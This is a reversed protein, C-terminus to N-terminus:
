GIIAGDDGGEFYTKIKQHWDRYFKRYAIVQSIYEEMLIDELKHYFETLEQRTRHKMLKDSMSFVFTVIYQALPYAYQKANLNLQKYRDRTERLWENIMWDFWTLMYKWDSSKSGGVVSATRLTLTYYTNRTFIVCKSAKLMEFSMKKDTTLGNPCSWSAHFANLYIESKVLVSWAAEPMRTECFALWKEKESRAIIESSLIPYWLFRVNQHNNEEYVSSQICVMDAFQEVVNTYTYKLYDRAYFDDSDLCCMYETTVRKKIEQFLAERFHTADRGLQREVEVNIETRYVKIRKDLEAYESIIRSTTGDNSGHDVIFYMFERFSQNLVSEISRRLYHEPTNYILSFVTIPPNQTMTKMYSLQSPTHQELDPLKIEFCTKDFELKYIKDEPFDAMLLFEEVFESNGYPTIIIVENDYDAKMRRPSVIDIFYPKDNQIDKHADVFCKIPVGIRLLHQACLCGNNGAGYIIVPTGTDFRNLFADLKEANILDQAYEYHNM